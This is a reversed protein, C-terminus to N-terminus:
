EHTEGELTYIVKINIKKSLSYIEEKTVNKFTEIRTEFDDLDSVDQYFYNDVIRGINDKNMNLSTNILMKAQSLENDSINNSMEKIAEKILKIAKKNANVDVATSIIFLGDYKQYMSSVNYCLSNEGRLKKYLKTELSGGGLIINYLNAVYKKEYATLKNLNLIVIINSQVYHYKESKIALKGKPNDVYMKFEHNKIINFKAYKTVYKTIKEMDLNGIVYVDVYDHKLVSMYYNYLNEPTINDLDELTGISGYSSPIDGLYKLSNLLAYKKPSEKISKIEDRIREKVFNFLKSDFENNNVLPNFILDFLLKIVSESIDEEIYSPSLFDMCINSIVANGVKSTVDYVQANYEDELKLLMNRKTNYTKNCECLLDFLINRKTLEEKVVNNRFIIEIHCLKFKDTKITHLNYGDMVQKKYIM